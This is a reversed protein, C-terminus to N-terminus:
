IQIKLIKKRTQFLTSSTHGAMSGAEPTCLRQDDGRSLIFLYQCRDDCANDDNSGSQADTYIFKNRQLVHLFLVRKVFLLQFQHPFFRCRELFFHILHIGEILLQPLHDLPCTRTVAWFTFTAYCSLLLFGRVNRMSVVVVQEM